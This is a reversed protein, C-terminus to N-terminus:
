KKSNLLRSATQKSGAMDFVPLLERVRTSQIRSLTPRALLRTQAPTALDTPFSTAGFFDLGRALLCEAETASGLVVRVVSCGRSGGAQAVGSDSGAPSGTPKPSATGTQQLRCLEILTSYRRLALRLDEEPVEDPVEYVCITFTRRPRCPIAVKRYFRSGTLKHFGKRFVTQYDEYDSFKFLVGTATRTVSFGGRFEMKDTLATAREATLGAAPTLLFAGKVLFPESESTESESDAKSKWLYGESMKDTHERQPQQQRESQQHARLQQQETPSRTDLTPPSASEETHSM